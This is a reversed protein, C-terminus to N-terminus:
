VKVEEKIYEQVNLGAWLALTAMTQVTMAHSHKRKSESAVAYVGTARFVDYWTLGRVQRVEDLAQMFQVIDFYGNTM